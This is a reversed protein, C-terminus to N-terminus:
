IGEGLAYNTLTATIFNSLNYGLTNVGTSGSFMRKKGDSIIYYSNNENVLTGDRLKVLPGTPLSLDSSNSNVLRTSTFGYTDFVQQSEFGQKKGALIWWVTNGEKVLSGEPHIETGSSIPIGTTYDSLNILPLNNFKYGLETFVKSSVFGRKTYDSGIMYVTKGDTADIVLTGPMAKLINKADFALALDAKNAQVAQSFKYGYSNYEAANRFGWRKGDKILYITQGDIILTGNPHAGTKVTNDGGAGGGGSSGSSLITSYVFPGVRLENSDGYITHYKFTFDVRDGPLLGDFTITHLDPDIIVSCVDCGSPNAQYTGIHFGDFEEIQSNTSFTYVAQSANTIRSPVSTVETLVMPCTGVGGDQITWLTPVMLFYSHASVACYTSNGADFTLHDHIPLGNSMWGTLLGDYNATSLTVGDFMDALTTAQRTNWNGLNQDFSTNGAFMSAFDTVSSVDWTSIDQNFSTNGYFMGNMSQVSSTDWGSIDQNFSTNAYFMASMNTVSSTNWSSIDGNYSTDQFAGVFSTASSVDWDEIGSTFTTGRFAYQYDTVASLDPTDTASIDMNSAGFFAGSMTKWTGTGWHEVDLLKLYDGSLGFAIGNFGAGTVIVTYTGPLAYTHTQPGTVSTDTVGDGWNITYVGDNFAPFKIQTSSTEGSNDTKWVTVFDEANYPSGAGASIFQSIYDTTASFATTGGNSATSVLTGDTGSTRDWARFTLGDSVTGAFGHIGVCYLRNDGDAAMLRSSSASLTGIASWNVGGNLSYYCTLNSNVASIAIGLLASSDVDSVNDVQGVPTSFDVLASVLTGVAGIPPSSDQPVGSMTPTKSNDLVPADNAATGTFAKSGTIPAAVGDTVSTSISFSISSNAASTFTVGALLANVNAVAGSATWVGTSFTSTVAGSTATSLTGAAINSLTLTATVSSSDVDSVVIDILDLAVDETYTEAASLNTASPSDNVAIGTFNKTGSASSTGDSVNTDITFSSNFNSNPLFTVGALLTNVNAIAGSATWVGASFTSTVAGSTATTLTGASTNSLTLTVTLPDSDADSTVIDILNLPTDETYTEAASLNTASPSAASVTNINGLILFLSAAIALVLRNKNINKM